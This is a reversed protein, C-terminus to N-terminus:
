QGTRGGGRGWPLAGPWRIGRFAAWWELALLALAAIVVAGAIEVPVTGKVPKDAQVQGLRVRAPGTAPAPRAPFFNVAFAQPEAGTTTGVEKVSYLGPRSTDTFPPFPASLHDVAGDPRVVDLRRTGPSPFFSVPQGAIIDRAGLTLGPALYRLMNQLVIPFSIRLPWDSRQLDFDVVGYRANGRAGAVLAAHGNSVALPQLWGPLSATRVQAIHVDGLDAYRLIQSAPGTVASSANTVAGGTLQRGFRLSGLRGAPPATLLTSGTPLFPPLVGDFVALDYDREMGPLYVGPPVLSLRVSPDLLLATQLFYDGNSVLLVRRTPEAAVAAWAAKDGSVDDARTLRVELRRVDPPLDTWALNQQGHPAITLPRVDALRLGSGAPSGADVLLELDSRATQAGFNAVRAVAQVASSSTAGSAYGASFATIGLDRLRSGIREIDVPFGVTLPLTSIGSDRSTLVIVQTSEGARALSAALSLAELFNPQDVGARLGDIARGVAGQDSSEAIALHPQSGMGIVSVVHGGGLDSALSHARDIAVAFRSPAVDHAQMGYSEDVILVLDGLVVHTRSYAPGALALILAALALLQLLLLINFRLRQWPANAQIDELAKRWLFTSPVIQEQRRLKLVYLLIIPVALAALALAVPTLLYM